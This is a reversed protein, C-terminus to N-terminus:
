WPLPTLLLIHPNPPHNSTFTQLAPQPKRWDPRIHHCSSWLLSYRMAGFAQQVFELSVDSPCLHLNFGAFGVTDGNELALDYILPGVDIILRYRGVIRSFGM